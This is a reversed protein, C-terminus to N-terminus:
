RMKVFSHGRMRDRFDSATIRLFKGCERSRHVFVLVGGYSMDSVPEEHPLSYNSLSINKDRLFENKSKWAKGCYECQHFLFHNHRIAQVNRLLQSKM